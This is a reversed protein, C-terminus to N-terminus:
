TAPSGRGPVQGHPHAPGARQRRRGRVALRRWRDGDHPRRDRPLRPVRQRRHRRQELGLEASPRRGAPPSSSRTSRSADVRRRHDDGPRRPDPRRRPTRSPRAACRSSRRHRAPGHDRAAAFQEAMLEGAFPELHALLAAEPEIVTVERPASGTCGPPRRAPRRRRRRHGRGPRAGRAPQHRRALDM